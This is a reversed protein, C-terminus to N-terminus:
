DNKANQDIESALAVSINFPISRTNFFIFATWIAAVVSGIVIYNERVFHLLKNALRAQRKGMRKKNAQSFRSDNSDTRISTTVNTASLPAAEESSCCILM